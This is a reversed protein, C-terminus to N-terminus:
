SLEVTALEDYTLAGDKNVIRKGDDADASVQEFM